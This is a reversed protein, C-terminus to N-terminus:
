ILKEKATQLFIKLDKYESTSQWQGYTYENLKNISNDIRKLIIVDNYDLKLIEHNKMIENWFFKLDNISITNTLEIRNLSKLIEGKKLEIMTIQKIDKMQENYYDVIISIIFIHFLSKYYETTFDDLKFKVHSRWLLPIFALVIFLLLLRFHVKNYKRM